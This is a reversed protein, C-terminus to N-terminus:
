VNHTAHRQSQGKRRHEREREKEAEKLIEKERDRGDGIRERMGKLLISTTEVLTKEIMM